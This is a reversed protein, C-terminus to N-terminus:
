PLFPPNLPHSQHLDYNIKIRVIPLPGSRAGSDNARVPPPWAPTRMMTIHFLTGMRHYPTPFLRLIKGPAGQTWFNGYWTRKGNWNGNGERGNNKNSCERLEKKAKQDVRQLSENTILLKAM